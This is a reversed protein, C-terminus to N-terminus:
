LVAQPSRRPQRAPQRRHATCAPRLPRCCFRRLAAWPIVLSKRRPGPRARSKGRCGGRSRRRGTHPPSARSSEPRSTLPEHVAFRRTAGATLLASGTSRHRSRVPSPPATPLGVSRHSPAAYGWARGTCSGSASGSASDAPDPARRSRDFCGPVPARCPGCSLGGSVCGRVRCFARVACGFGPRSSTLSKTHQRKNLARGVGLM